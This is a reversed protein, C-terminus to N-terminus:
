QPEFKISDNARILCFPTFFRTHSIDFKADPEVPCLIRL